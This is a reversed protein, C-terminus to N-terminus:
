RDEAHLSPMLDGGNANLNDRFMQLLELQAPTLEYDTSKERQRLAQRAKKMLASNSWPEERMPVLMKYLSRYQSPDSFTLAEMEAAEEPNMGTEQNLGEAIMLTERIWQLVYLQNKPSEPPLLKRIEQSVPTANLKQAETM